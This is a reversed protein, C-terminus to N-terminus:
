LKCQKMIKRRWAEYAAKAQALFNLRIKLLKQKDCLVSKMNRMNAAVKGWMKATKAWEDKRPSRTRTMATKLSPRQTTVTSARLDATDLTDIFSDVQATSPAIMGAAVTDFASVQQQQREQTEKQQLDETLAVQQELKAIEKQSAAIKSLIRQMRLWLESKKAKAAKCAVPTAAATVGKRTPM